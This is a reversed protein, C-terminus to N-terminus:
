RGRPRRLPHDGIGGEWVDLITDHGPDLFPCPAPPTILQEIAIRPRRPLAGSAALVLLDHEDADHYTSGACESQITAKQKRKKRTKNSLDLKKTNPTKLDRPISNFFLNL